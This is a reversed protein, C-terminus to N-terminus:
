PGPPPPAPQPNGGPFRGRLDNYITDAGARGRRAAERVTQYYALDAMWIESNAILLTDNVSECLTTLPAFVEMLKGRLERDKSIEATSVFGPLFEPNSGMYTKCKDDFGVSKDGMKPIEMREANSISLLFPLKTRITTVAALIDTVDQATLSTSIRNDPTMATISPVFGNWSLGRGNWKLGPANWRLVEAM